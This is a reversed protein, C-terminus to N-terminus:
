YKNSGKEELHKAIAEKDIKIDIIPYYIMTLIKNDNSEKTFTIFDIRKKPINLTITYSVCNKDEGQFLWKDFNKDVELLELIFANEIVAHEHGKGFVRLTLLDKDIELSLIEARRNIPYFNEQIADSRCVVVSDATISIQGRVSIVGTLFITALILKKM